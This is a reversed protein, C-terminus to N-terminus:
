PMQEPSYARCAHSAVQWTQRFSAQLQQRLIEPNAAVNGALRQMLLKELAGAQSALVEAGVNAAASRVAHVWRREAADDGISDLWSQEWGSFYQVFLGVAQWWIAPQDLMREIAAPVNFGELTQPISMATPIGSLVKVVIAGNLCSRRESKREFM